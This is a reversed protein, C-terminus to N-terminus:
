SREKLADWLGPIMRTAARLFGRSNPSPSNRDTQFGTLLAITPHVNRGPAAIPKDGKTLDRFAFTRTMQLPTQAEQPLDLITPKIM